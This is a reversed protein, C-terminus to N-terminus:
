QIDLLLRVVYLKIKIYNYILKLFNEPTVYYCLFRQIIIKNECMM